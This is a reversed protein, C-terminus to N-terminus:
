HYLCTSSTPVSATSPIKQHRHLNPHIFYCIPMEVSRERRTVRSPRLYWMMTPASLSIVASAGSRPCIEVVKVSPVVLGRWTSGSELDFVLVLSLAPKESNASAETVLSEAERVVMRRFRRSLLILTLMSEKSATRRLNVVIFWGLLVYLKSRSRSLCPTM